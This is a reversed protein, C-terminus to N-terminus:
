TKKRKTQQRQKTGKGLEFHEDIVAAILHATRGSVDFEEEIWKKIDGDLKTHKQSSYRVPFAAVAGILATFTRSKLDLSKIREFLEENIKQTRLSCDLIQKREDLDQMAAELEQKCMQISEFKQRHIQMEENVTRRIEMAGALEQKLTQREAQVEELKLNAAELKLSAKELFNEAEQRYHIAESLKKNIEARVSPLPFWNKLFSLM